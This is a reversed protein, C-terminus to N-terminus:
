GECRSSPDAGCRSPFSPSLLLQLTCLVWPRLSCRALLEGWSSHGKDIPEASSQEIIHLHKTDIMEAPSCNLNIHIELTAYCIPSTSSELRSIWERWPSSYEFLRLHVVTGSSLTVMKLLMGCVYTTTNLGVWPHRITAEPPGDKATHIIGNRDLWQQSSGGQGQGFFLHRSRIGLPHGQGLM